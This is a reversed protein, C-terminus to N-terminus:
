QRGGDPPAYTAAAGALLHAAFAARQRARRLLAAQVRGLHRVHRGLRMAEPDSFWRPHRARDLALLERCLEQQRATQEEISHMDCALLAPQTALLVSALEHFLVLQRAHSEAQSLIQPDM